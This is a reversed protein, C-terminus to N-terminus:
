ILNKRLIHATDKATRRQLTQWPHRRFTKLHDYNARDDESECEVHATNRDTPKQLKIFEISRKKVENRDTNLPVDTQLFRSTPNTEHYSEATIEQKWLITVRNDQSTGSLESQYTNM